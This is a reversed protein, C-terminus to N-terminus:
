KDEKLFHKLAYVDNDIFEDIDDQTYDQFPEWYITHAEDSYYHGEIFKQIEEETIDKRINM